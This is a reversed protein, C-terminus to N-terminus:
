QFLEATNDRTDVNLRLPTSQSTRFASVLQPPLTGKLVAIQLTQTANQQCAVQSSALALLGLLMTRRDM